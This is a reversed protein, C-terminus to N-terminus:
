LCVAWQLSGEREVAECRASDGSRKSSSVAWQSEAKKAKKAEKAEEAIGRDHSNRLIRQYGRGDALGQGIDFKMM